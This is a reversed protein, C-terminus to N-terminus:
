AKAVDYFSAWGGNYLDSAVGWSDRGVGYYMAKAVTYISM